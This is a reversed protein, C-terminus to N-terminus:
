VFIFPNDTTPEIEEVSSSCASLMRLCPNVIRENRAQTESYPVIDYGLRCNTLCTRFELCANSFRMCKEALIEEDKTEEVKIGTQSKKVVCNVNQGGLRDCLRNEADNLDQFASIQSIIIIFFLVAILKTFNM